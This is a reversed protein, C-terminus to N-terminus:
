NLKAAATNVSVLLSNYTTLQSMENFVVRDNQIVWAGENEKLFDFIADIKDLYENVNDITSNIESIEDELKISDKFLEKYKGTLGCDNARQEKYEDTVMEALRTKVDEGKTKVDNILKKSAEFNPGDNQYNEASLITTFEENQYEETLEEAIKQYDVVYDKLAKEVEAYKGSSKIEMDVTSTENIKEMEDGIIQKQSNDNVVMVVGVVIAIVVVAIVAIIIIKKSKSEKEEM